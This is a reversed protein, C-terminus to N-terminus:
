GDGLRLLLARPELLEINREGLWARLSADGLLGADGTVIAEAGGAIAAAIVPADDPDRPTIEVEVMPLFPAMLAFLNEIDEETIQYRSLKPRRLM